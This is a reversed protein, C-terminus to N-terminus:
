FSMFYIKFFVVQSIKSVRFSSLISINTTIKGILFINNIIFKNEEESLIKKSKSDEPSLIKISNAAPETLPNKQFPAM